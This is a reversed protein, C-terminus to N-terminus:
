EYIRFSYTIFKDIFKHQLLTVPSLNPFWKYLVCIADSCNVVLRCRRLTSCKWCSSTMLHFCKGREMQAHFESTVPSNGACLGTVRLKSTKKMTITASSRVVYPVVRNAAMINVFISQFKTTEAGSHNKNYLSLHCVNLFNTSTHKHQFMSLCHIRFTNFLEEVENWCCNSLM